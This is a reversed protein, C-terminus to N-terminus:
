PQEETVAEALRGPLDAEELTGTVLGYLLRIVREYYFHALPRGATIEREALDYAAMLHRRGAAAASDRPVPWRSMLRQHTSRFTHLRGGTGATPCSTMSAPERLRHYVVTPQELHAFKLGHRHHLQLWMDWDEEVPLTEDFVAGTGHLSRAVVATVPIYNAVDLVGADFPFDFVHEAHVAGGPITRRSSVPCASYVLDGGSQQLAAVSAALHGPLFVDDDDLFAWFQGTATLMGANRAAPLGRNRGFTVLQANLRAPLADILPTVDRGGDNVVVVEVDVGDQAAVSDLAEALLHLRDKTPIIVSVTPITM